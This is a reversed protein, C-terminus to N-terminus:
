KQAEDMRREFSEVSGINFYKVNNRSQRQQVREMFLKRRFNSYDEQKEEESRYNDSGAGFDPKFDSDNETAFTNSDVEAGRNRFPSDNLIVKATQKNVVVVQKVKGPELYMYQFEQWSIESRSLLM